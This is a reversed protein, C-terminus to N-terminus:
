QALDFLDDQGKAVLVNAIQKAWAVTQPGPSSLGTTPIKRVQQKSAAFMWQDFGDDEVVFALSAIVEGTQEPM